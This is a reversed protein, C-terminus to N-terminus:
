SVSAWPMARTSRAAHRDATVAILGIDIDPGILAVGRELAAGLEMGNAIWGYVERALMHRIIHEGVGTVAIAGLPGAFFGHGVLATDGVRGLLAPSAGGTSGAVAFSGDAARAVAGVTDCAQRSRFTVPVDYNWFRAFEGNDVGPFADCGARMTELLKSHAQRVRDSVVYHDAHGLRRALSAAGKGCLLCHPTDAVARAVLVPNKVREIAAVAGLRGLSDMVGADMEITTGDLALHSGSGANFRGDDELCVVADVVATLADAGAALAALGRRAALVCGDRDQPDAGAGGHALVIPTM